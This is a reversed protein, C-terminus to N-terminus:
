RRMVQRAQEARVTQRITDREKMSQERAAHFIATQARNGGIMEGPARLAPKNDNAAQGHGHERMKAAANAEQNLKATAPSHNSQLLTLTPKASNVNQKPAARAAKFSM